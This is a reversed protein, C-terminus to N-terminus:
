TQVELDAPAFVGGPPNVPIVIARDHSRAKDEALKRSGHWSIARWNRVDITNNSDDPDVALVNEACIHTYARHTTRTAAQGNPLTATLTRGQDTM